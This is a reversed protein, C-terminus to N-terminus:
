ERELLDSHVGFTLLKKRMEEEKGPLVQFLVRFPTAVRGLLALNPNAGAWGNAISVLSRVFHGFVVEDEECLLDESSTICILYFEAYLWSLDSMCDELAAWNEGFYYPFQFAAAIEDFLRSMNRMKQARCARIVTSKDKSRQMEWLYNCLDSDTLAGVLFVPSESSAVINRM